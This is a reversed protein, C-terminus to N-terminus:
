RLAPCAPLMVSALGAALVGFLSLALLFLTVLHLFAPLDAQLPPDPTLLRRACMWIAGIALAALLTVLVIGTRTLGASLLGRECAVHQGGYVAGFHLAWILPGSLSTFTLRAFHPDRAPPTTM